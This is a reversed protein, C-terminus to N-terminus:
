GVFLVPFSWGFPSGMGTCFVASDGVRCQCNAKSFSLIGLLFVAVDNLALGVVVVTPKFQRM